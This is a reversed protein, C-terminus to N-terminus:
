SSRQSPDVAPVLVRKVYAVGNQTFTGSFLFAPEYFSHDGAIALAYVLEVGTLQVTPIPEISAPAAPASALAMRVAEGSSITPYAASALFLPMPGIAQLPQGGRLDVELGYREGLGDVLYAQGAGPVAFQRLYSVRTVEGVQEVAVVYTWTPTLGHAALFADATATPTPGPAPLRSQDPTLYFYPERDLAQSSGVVGLILGDGSYSGLVGAGTGAQRSAGLSAAFQDADAASPESYRYVPASNLQFTFQGAWVLNAPGLYVVYAPQAAAGPNTAKPLSTDATPPPHLAPSPLRGFSAAGNFQSGSEPRGVLSGATSGGGGHHVVSLALIGAGIAVVLVAAVAAGPVAPAERVSDVLGAFFDQLRRWVPRRAQMRSWLADEFGARPRTTEFADDLQRQLAQLELDENDNM